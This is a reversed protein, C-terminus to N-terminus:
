RDLTLAARQWSAQALSASASSNPCLSLSPCPMAHSAIAGALSYTHIM